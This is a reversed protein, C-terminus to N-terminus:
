MTIILISICLIPSAGYASANVMVDFFVIKHSMLNLIKCIKSLYLKVCLLLLLKDYAVLSHTM